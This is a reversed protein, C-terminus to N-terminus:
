PRITIRTTKEVTISAGGEGVRGTNMSDTRQATSFTPNPQALRIIYFISSYFLHYDYRLAYYQYIARPENEDHKPAPVRFRRYRRRPHRRLFIIALWRQGDLNGGGGGGGDVGGDM